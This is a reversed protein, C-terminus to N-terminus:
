CANWADGSIERRSAEKRATVAVVDGLERRQVGAFRQSVAAEIEALRADALALRRQMRSSAKASHWAVLVDGDVALVRDIEALGAGLDPWIAVTNVTVVHHFHGGPFPLDAVDGIRLDMRECGVYRHNTRQAHRLMVDSPEVGAVVAASTSELLTRVLRGPGYGIELVREGARVPLHHAVQYQAADNGSALVWGAVHGLPGRPVAFPNQLRMLTM